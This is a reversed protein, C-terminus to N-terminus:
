PAWTATRANTLNFVSSTCFSADSDRYWLQYHRTNGPAVLGKQSVPLDLSPRPYQSANGAATVVGLRIVTGGTCRLGDGFTIGAGAGLQSTGQFYLGPGNPVGSAALVLTDGAVSVSGTGDLRAGLAQVSNACGRGTGGTNACPCAAGTGDGFCYATTSPVYVLQFGNVSGSGGASQVNVVLTGGSVDVTHRAYTTGLVHPSGTWAGGVVQAPDPSGTVSVQTRASASDPAWAYTYVVYAGDQLNSFTWTYPTAFSGLDQVDNMFAGDDGTLSGFIWGFASSSTSSTTVASPSGDLNVLTASYPSSVGNWTGPQGAAAAYANSPVPFLITNAGADVNFSQARAGSALCIVSLLPVLYRM